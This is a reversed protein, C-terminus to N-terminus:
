RERARALSVGGALLAAGAVALTLLAPLWSGGGPGTPGTGTNPAIVAPAAGGGGPAAGAPAAGGSAVVTITGMMGQNDHLICHYTYTGPTTFKLTYKNSPSNVADFIGSNAYATGDYTAGGAPLFTQLPIFLLPPGSPQPQPQVLSPLAQGPALFTVTHPVANPNTWTVSDGANITINPSSYQLIDAELVSGGAQVSWNYSGDAQQQKTSKLQSAAAVGNAILQDSAAKGAADIAAQTQLPTAVGTVTVDISMTPGHVLCIFHFTGQQPFSVDATGSKFLLGSNYYKTPDFTVTGTGTPNAAQPNFMFQPPGSPAPVILAPAAMSPPLFSVTHPENVPDAFHVTDGQHVTVADPFFDNAAIGTVGQGLTINWVTPTAAASRGPGAVGNLAMVLAMALVPAILIKRKM